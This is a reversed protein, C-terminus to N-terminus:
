IKKQIIRLEKRIEKLMKIHRLPQLVCGILGISQIYDDIQQILCQTRIFLDIAKHDMFTQPTKETNMADRM